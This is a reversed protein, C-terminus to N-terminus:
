SGDNETMADRKLYWRGQSRASVGLILVEARTMRTRDHCRPAADPVQVVAGACWLAFGCVRRSHGERTAPTPRLGRSWRTRADRRSRSRPHWAPRGRLPAAVSGAISFLVRNAFAPLSHRPSSADGRRHTANASPARHELSSRSMACHLRVLWRRWGTFHQLYQRSGVATGPASM